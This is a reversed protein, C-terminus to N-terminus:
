SRQQWLRRLKRCRKCPLRVATGYLKPSGVPQRQGESLTKLSCEAQLKRQAECDKVEALRANFVGARWGDRIDEISVEDNVVTRQIRQCSEPGNAGSDKVVDEVEM